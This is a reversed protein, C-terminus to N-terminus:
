LPTGSKLTVGLHERFMLAAIREVGDAGGAALAEPAEALPRALLAVLADAAAPDASRTAAQPAPPPSLALNSPAPPDPSSSSSSSFRMANTKAEEKGPAAPAGPVALDCVCGRQRGGGMEM